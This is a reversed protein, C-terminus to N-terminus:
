TIAVGIPLQEINQKLQNPEPFYREIDASSFQRFSGGEYLLANIKVGAGVDFVAMNSPQYKGVMGNKDGLSGVFVIKSQLGQERFIMPYFVHMHGNIYMSNTNTLLQLFDTRPTYDTARGARNVLPLGNVANVHGLVFSNQQINNQIFSIKGNALGSYSDADVLIFKRGNFDFTQEPYNNYNFNQVKNYVEPHQAYFNKWLSVMLQETGGERDHNGIVQFIPIGANVLPNAIQNFFKDWSKQAGANANISDGDAIVFSPNLAKIQNVVVSAKEYHNHFDSFAVFRFEGAGPNSLAPVESQITGTSPTPGSTSGSTVVPPYVWINYGHSKDPPTIGRAGIFIDIKPCCKFASGTDEALYWGDWENNAGFDIYVRSGYPIYGAQGLSPNVAITQHPQEFMTNSPKALWPDDRLVGGSFSYFKGGYTGTGELKTNDAFADWCSIPEGKVCKGSRAGWGCVDACQNIDDCDKPSLGKCYTDGPAIDYHTIQLDKNTYTPSEIPKPKSKWNDFGTRFEQASRARGGIEVDCVCSGKPNLYATKGNINPCFGNEEKGGLYCTGSAGTVASTTKGTKKNHLTNSPYSVLGNNASPAPTSSIAWGHAGTGAQYGAATGQGPVIGNPNQLSGTPVVSEHFYVKDFARWDWPGLSNDWVLSSSKVIPGTKVSWSEDVEKQKKPLGSDALSSQYQTSSTQTIGAASQYSSALPSYTGPTSSGSMSYTGLGLQNFVGKAWNKAATKGATGHGDFHPNKDCCCAQGTGCFNFNSHPRSDIFTCISGIGSKMDDYLSDLNEKNPGHPSGIWYCKAGGKVAEQALRKSTEVRVSQGMNHLNAGLSIVVVNPQYESILDTMLPSPFTGKKEVNDELIFLSGSGACQSAIGSHSTVGGLGSMQEPKLFYSPQSGCQGYHRVTAGTSRLLSNIEKGYTQISHSDGLHLIKTGAKPVTTASGTVADKLKVFQFGRNKLGEIGPIVGEAVQKDPHNVHSIIIDGSNATLWSQTIQLAGFSTGGDGNVSWDVITHGNAAAVNVCAPDAMGTGPRFYKTRVGILEYIRDSAGKIEKVMETQDKTSTIGYVISDSLTCPKHEYGHNEIEFLPNKALQKALELNHEIWRVNLFLTAPIQNQILYNVIEEDYGNSIGTSSQSGCADLTIAVQKNTTPFSTVVGPTNSGDPNYTYGSVLPLLILITLVLLSYTLTRKRFLKRSVM